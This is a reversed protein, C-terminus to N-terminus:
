GGPVNKWHDHIVQSIANVLVSLDVADSDGISDMVHANWGPVSVEVMAIEGDAAGMHSYKPPLRWFDSRNMAALLSDIEAPTLPITRNTCPGNGNQNWRLELWGHTGDTIGLRVVTVPFPGLTIDARLGLRAGKMQPPLLRYDPEGDPKKIIALSCREDIRTTVRDCVSNMETENLARVTSLWHQDIALSPHHPDAKSVYPDCVMRSIRDDDKHKACFARSGCYTRGDNKQAWAEACYDPHERAYSFLMASAANPLSLGALLGFAAVSMIRM